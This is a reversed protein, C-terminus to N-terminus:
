QSRFVFTKAANIIFDIIRLFLNWFYRANSILVGTGFLDASTGYGELTVNLDAPAYADSTFGKLVTKIVAGVVVSAMTKMYMLKAAPKFIDNKVTFSQGPLDLAEFLANAASVPVNVLAYTLAAKLGQGFLRIEPSDYPINEIGSYHAALITGVIDPLNKYGSQDLSEGVCAAIEEVSDIEPTNENDYFPLNLAGGLTNMVDALADYAETGDEINLAKAISGPSGIYRNVFYNMSAKFFGLSYAQFNNQILSLQAENYGDVLDAIDISDINRSEIDVAKDSFRVERYTNPYAILSCTEVDYITNGKDSTAGSIDNGHVHGTFVVKVGLDALMSAVDRYNDVMIYKVALNQNKFHELISYHIMGVLKKGEAKALFAQSEIWSRLDDDIVSIDEGDVVADIALLRYSEDLDATYSGSNVHCSVAESYGFDNYIDKFQAMDISNEVVAARVDHNGSIVYIRKGTSAEFQRFKESIGLHEPLYGDDTLDGPVLLIDCDSAEFRDLFENIIAESEFPMQGTTNAHRYLPYDPLQNQNEISGLMSHPRYHCDSMVWVKLDSDAGAAPIAALPLLSFCLVICVFAKLRTKM